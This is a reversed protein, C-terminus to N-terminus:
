SFAILPNYESKAFFLFGPLFVCKGSGSERGASTVEKRFFTSSIFSFLQFYTTFKETNFTASRPVLSGGSDTINM